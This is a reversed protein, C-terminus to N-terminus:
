FPTDALGGSDRTAAGPPEKDERLRPLTLPPRHTSLSRGRGGQRTSARCGLPRVQQAVGPAPACSLLPGSSALRPCSFTVGRDGLWPDAPRVPLLQPEQQLPWLLFGAM